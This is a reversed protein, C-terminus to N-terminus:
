PKPNVASIIMFKNNPAVILKEIPQSTINEIANILTLDETKLLYLSCGSVVIIVSDDRSFHLTTNNYDPLQLNAERIIKTDEGAKQFNGEKAKVEFLKVGPSWAACGFLCGDDSVALQLNNIQKTDVSALLDGEYSHVRIETDNGESRTIVWPGKSAVLDAVFGKQLANKSRHIEKM